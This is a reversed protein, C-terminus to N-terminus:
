KEGVLERDPDPPSTFLEAFETPQWGLFGMWVYTPSPPEGAHRDMWAKEDKDM